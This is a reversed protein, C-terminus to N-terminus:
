FSHSVGVSIASTDVGDASPATVGTMSMASNAENNVSTYATYVTTRKSLDKTLALTYGTGKNASAQSGDEGIAYIAHATLGASMPVTLRAMTSKSTADNTTSNDAKQQSIGVAAFGFDYAVGLGTSDKKAAGTGDTKAHGAALTLKGVKYAASVGTQEGGADTTATSANTTTGVMLELGGVNATYRIVSSQDAGLETSTRPTVNLGFNGSKNVKSDIESAMSVDTLGMRLEGFGGSLTVVSERNFLQNATTSGVTGTNTTLAGELIFGAKLGGGLDETGKFGLRGTNLLGNSSRTITSTGNDYQQIGTDLIGYVTVNQASAATAMAALAAAIALKKM